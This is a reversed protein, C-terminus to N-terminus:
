ENEDFNIVPKKMVFIAGLLSSLASFILMGFTAWFTMWGPTMFRAQMKLAQEMQEDTLDPNEYIAEAAQERAMDVMSSDIFSLNIYMFVISIASSILMVYFLYLFAKGYALGNDGYQGRYQIGFYILMGFLVVWSIYGMNQQTKLDDITFQFVLSLAISVLAIILGPMLADSFKIKVEDM